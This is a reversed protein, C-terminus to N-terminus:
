VNNARSVAQIMFVNLLNFCQQYFGNNVELFKSLMTLWFRFNRKPTIKIFDFSQETAYVIRNKRGQTPNYHMNSKENGNENSKRTKISRQMVAHWNEDTRMM